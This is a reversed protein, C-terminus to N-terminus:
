GQTRRARVTLIDRADPITRPLGGTGQVRRNANMHREHEIQDIGPVFTREPAAHIMHSVWPSSAVFRKRHIGQFGFRAPNCPESRVTMGRPSSVGRGFLGIRLIWM